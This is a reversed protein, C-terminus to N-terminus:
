IRSEFHPAVRINQIRSTNQVWCRLTSFHLVRRLDRNKFLHNPTIVYMYYGMANVGGGVMCLHM